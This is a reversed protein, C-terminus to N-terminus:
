ISRVSNSIRRGEFIKSIKNRRADVEYTCRLLWLWQWLEDDRPLEIVNLGLRRAECADIVSGHSHYVDRTSLSKVVNDVETDTKAALMGNKLLTRALKETQKIAHQAIQLLVPDVPGPSQTLFQAPILQGPQLPLHPDIPGLESGVGMVIQRAALAILTGNSKARKPVIVRLDDTHSQLISVVKEAADTMGGNTELLLDIKKTTTGGLLELLYKDDYSDIHSPTSCDTYYVILERGTREEIDKIFLQRLYREKQEAWYLPSQKPLARGRPFEAELEAVM